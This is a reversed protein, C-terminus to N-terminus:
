GSVCSRMYERYNRQSVPSSGEIGQRVPLGLRKRLRAVQLCASCTVMPEPRLTPGNCAWFQCGARELADLADSILKEDAALRQPSPNAIM